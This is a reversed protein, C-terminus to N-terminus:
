FFSIEGLDTLTQHQLICFKMQKELKQTLFHNLCKPYTVKNAINGSSCLRYVGSKNWSTALSKHIRVIGINCPSCGTYCCFPLFHLDYLLQRGTARWTKMKITNSTVFYLKTALAFLKCYKWCFLLSSWSTNYYRTGQGRGGRGGWGGEWPSAQYVSNICAWLLGWNKHSEYFLTYKGCM